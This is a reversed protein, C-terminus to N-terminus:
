DRLKESILRFQQRDIKGESVLRTLLTSAKKKSTTSGEFGEILVSYEEGSIKKTSLLDFLVDDINGKNSSSQYQTSTNGQNANGGGDNIVFSEQKLDILKNDPSYIKINYYYKGPALGGLPIEYLEIHPGGTLHKTKSTVTSGDEDNLIEVVWKVSEYNSQHGSVIFFQEGQGFDRKIGKFEDFELGDGDLDKVWNCTFVLNLKPEYMLKRLYMTFILDGRKMGPRFYGNYGERNTVRVLNKKGKYVSAWVGGIKWKAADDKILYTGKSVKSYTFARKCNWPTICFDFVNKVAIDDISVNFKRAIEALSEEENQLFYEQTAFQREFVFSRRLSEMDFGQLDPSNGYSSVSGLNAAQNVIGQSIPYIQGNQVLYVNGQQDRVLQASTGGPGNLIIETKGAKALAIEHERSGGLRLLDRLVRLGAIDGATYNKSTNPNEM